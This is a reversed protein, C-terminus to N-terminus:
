LLVMRASKTLYCSARCGLGRLPPHKTDPPPDRLLARAIVLGLALTGGLSLWEIGAFSGAVIAAFPLMVEVARAAAPRRITM